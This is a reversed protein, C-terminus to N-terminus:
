SVALARGTASGPVDSIAAPPGAYVIKGGQEGADPGLEIVWDAARIVDVHHEVVIVTNGQGVLRELIELLRRVDEFHLGTTPEDLIYLFGGERKRGLEAALKMRQAEGGSLTAASQGLELYGLGVESLSRLPRAILPQNEFLQLAEAVTLRLVDSITHDRFRVSLTAEDFRAGGCVDCTVWVDSLF